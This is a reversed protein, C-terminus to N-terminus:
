LYFLGDERIQAPRPRRPRTVGESRVEPANQMERKGGRPVRRLSATKSCVGAAKRSLLNVSHLPPAPDFARISDGQGRGAGGSAM